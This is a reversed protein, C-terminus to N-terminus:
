PHPPPKPNPSLPAARGAPCDGLRRAEISQQSVHQASHMESLDEYGSSDRVTVVSSFKM